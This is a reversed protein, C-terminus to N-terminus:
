QTCTVFDAEVNIQVAGKALNGRVVSALLWNNPPTSTTSTATTAAAAAAAASMLFTPLLSRNKALM